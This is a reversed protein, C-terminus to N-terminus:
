LDRLEERFSKRSPFMSNLIELVIDLGRLLDLMSMSLLILLHQLYAIAPRSIGISASLIVSQSLGALAHGGSKALARRHRQCTQCCVSWCEPTCTEFCTPLYLASERLLANGVLMVFGCFHEFAGDEGDEFTEVGFNLILGLLEGLPSSLTALSDVFGAARCLLVNFKETLVSCCVVGVAALHHGGIIGVNQLSTDFVPEVLLDHLLVVVSLVQDTHLVTKGLELRVYHLSKLMAQALEHLDDVVLGLLRLDHVSVHNASGLPDWEIKFPVAEDLTIVLDQDVWRRGSACDGVDVERVHIMLGGLGDNGARQLALALDHTAVVGVVVDDSRRLEEVLELGVVVEGLLGHRLQREVEWVTNDAADIPLLEINLALVDRLAFDTVSKAHAVFQLELGMCRLSGVLPPLDDSLGGAVDCGLHGLRTHRIARNILRCSAV